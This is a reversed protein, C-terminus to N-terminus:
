IKELMGHAVEVIRVIEAPSAGDSQDEYYGIQSFTAEATKLGLFLFGIFLAFIVPWVIVAELTNM